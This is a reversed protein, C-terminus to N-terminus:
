KSREEYPLQTWAAEGPFTQTDLDRDRIKEFPRGCVKRLSSKARISLAEMSSAFDYDGDNRATQMWSDAECATQFLFRALVFDELMMPGRNKQVVNWRRVAELWTTDCWIEQNCKRCRIVFSRTEEIVEPAKQCSQCPNLKDNMM